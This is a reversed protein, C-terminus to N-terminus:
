LRLFKVSSLSRKRNPHESNLATKGSSVAVMFPLKVLSSICLGFVLNFLYKLVQNFFTPNRIYKQLMLCLSAPHVKNKIFSVSKGIADSDKSVCFPTQFWERPKICHICHVKCKKYKNMFNKPANTAFFYLSVVLFFGGRRRSIFFYSYSWSGFFHYWKGFFELSSHM